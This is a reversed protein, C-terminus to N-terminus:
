VASTTANTNNDHHPLVVMRKESQSALSAIEYQAPMDHWRWQLVYMHRGSWSERLEM